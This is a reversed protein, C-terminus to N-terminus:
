EAVVTFNYSNALATVPETIGRLLNNTNHDSNTLWIWFSDLGISRTVFVLLAAPVIFKATALLWLSHRSRAPARKLLLSALVVVLGFLTAQWLHDALRPWWWASFAAFWDHLNIM